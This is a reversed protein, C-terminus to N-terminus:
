LSQIVKIAALSGLYGLTSSLKRQKVLHLRLQQRRALVVGPAVGKHLLLSIQDILARGPTHHVAELRAEPLDLVGGHAM